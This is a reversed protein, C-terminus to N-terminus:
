SKSRRGWQANRLRKEVYGVTRSDASAGYAKLHERYVVVERVAERWSFYWGFVAGIIFTTTGVATAFAISGM